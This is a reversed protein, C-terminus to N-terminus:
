GGLTTVRDLASTQSPVTLTTEFNASDSTGQVVLHVEGACATLLDIIHLRPSKNVPTDEGLWAVHGYLCPRRCSLLRSLHAQM